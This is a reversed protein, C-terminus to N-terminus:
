QHTLPRRPEINKKELLLRCVLHRLSQLESTHEESRLLPRGLEFVKLYNRADYAKFVDRDRTARDYEDVFRQVEKAYHDNDGGFRILYSRAAAYALKQEEPNISKRYESFQAYLSDKTNDTAQSPMVPNQQGAVNAALELWFLAIAFVIIAGRSSKM